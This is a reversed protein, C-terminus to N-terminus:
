AGREVDGPCAREHRAAGCAHAPAGARRADIEALRREAAEPEWIEFIRGLGIFTVGGTLGAFKKLQEPVVIRGEKDPELQCSRAFLSDALNEHEESFM